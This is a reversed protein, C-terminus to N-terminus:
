VMSFGASEWCDKLNNKAFFRIHTQDLLGVNTYNWKGDWLNVLIDGHAVNPISALITGGECLLAAAKKLVAQPDYLHELVDAFLIYDFQRSKFYEVWEEGMLDACIGDSAYQIALNFAAQDYEIISVSCLLEDRMYRTM